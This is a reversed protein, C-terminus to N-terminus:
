LEICANETATQVTEYDYDVNWGAVRPNGVYLHVDDVQVRWYLSAEPNDPRCGEYHDLSALDISTIQMVEGEVQGDDAPRVTPFPAGEDIRDFGHLTADAIKDESGRLTGYVFVNEM